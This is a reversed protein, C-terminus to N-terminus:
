GVERGDAFVLGECETDGQVFEEEVAEGVGGVPLTTQVSHPFTLSSRGNIANEMGYMTVSMTIVTPTMNWAKWCM